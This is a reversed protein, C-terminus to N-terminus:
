DLGTAIEHFLQAPLSGGTVKRMPSDDDNGMWIGIISGRVAGVFWADRSDQTTGTKGGVVQGTVAAEHGTGRSVVANLMQAMMRAYVPDIVQEPVHPMQDLGHPVVRLGGNFFAAYAATLELVGVEGTGLALSADRPLTETIGLRAAREAVARPGGSRLLLKVSVTNISQALATELTIEGLYRHEFNNPAWSGVRIPADIIKDEPRMGTELATLWVFPKFASGPQRRALVARNFPGDRFNRGGVMARVAGSAADLIVVAGEGVDAADGDRNLMSTLRTEALAQDHADLTTRIIADTDPAVVSRSQEAVWDAFWNPRAVVPPFNIQSAAVRAQDQTITGAQVMATLVEKARALAASPNV